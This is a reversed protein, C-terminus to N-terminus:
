DEAERDILEGTAADLELEWVRGQGDLLLIEYVHRGHEQELEVDLIDGPQHRRASELIDELPLIAGGSLLRRAEEHDGLAAAALTALLLFLAPRSM